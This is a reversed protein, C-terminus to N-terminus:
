RTATSKDAADNGHRDFVIRTLELLFYCIVAFSATVALYQDVSQVSVSQQQQQAMGVRGLTIMLSVICWGV